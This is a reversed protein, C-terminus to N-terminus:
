FKSGCNNCKWTKNMDGVAFLGFLAAKGVKKTATIKSLNTSGCTPCKPKNDVSKNYQEIQSKMQSFKMNYEIIDKKKLEEMALIFSPDNSVQIIIKYEQSTMSLDHVTDGCVECTYNDDELFTSYRGRIIHKCDPDKKNCTPCFRVYYSM